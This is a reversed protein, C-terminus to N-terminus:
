EISSANTLNTAGDYGPVLKYANNNGMSIGVTPTLNTNGPGYNLRIKGTNFLTISFNVDSSDAENTANWRFTIQGSVTNDIFIDDGTGNTRINDWLGAIRRNAIFEALNNSGNSPGAPGAFHITGETSIYVTNQYTGDYFPFAFPLNYSFYTNNSRWNQATGSVV